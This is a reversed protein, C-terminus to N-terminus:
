RKMDVKIVQCWSVKGVGGYEWDREGSQEKVSEEMALCYSYIIRIIIRDYELLWGLLNGSWLLIDSCSIQLYTWCLHPSSQSSSAEVPM